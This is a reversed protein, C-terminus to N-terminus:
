KDFHGFTCKMKDAQETILDEKTVWGKWNSSSTNYLGLNQAMWKIIEEEAPTFLKEDDRSAMIITDPATLHPLCKRKVAVLTKTKKHSLQQHLHLRPLVAEAEKKPLPSPPKSPSRHLSETAVALAM